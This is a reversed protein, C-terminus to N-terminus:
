VHWRMVFVPHDVFGFGFTFSISFMKVPFGRLLKSLKELCLLSIGQYATIPINRMVQCYEYLISADINSVFVAVLSLLSLHTLECKVPKASLVLFDFPCVDGVSATPSADIRSGKRSEVVELLLTLLGLDSTCETGTPAPIVCFFSSRALVVELHNPELLERRGSLSIRRQTLPPNRKYM